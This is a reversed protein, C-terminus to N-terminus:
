RPRRGLLSTPLVCRILTRIPHPTSAPTWVMHAVFLRDTSACGEVVPGISATRCLCKARFLEDFALPVLPTHTYRLSGTGPDSLSDLRTDPGHTRRFILRDIRLRRRGPRDLEGNWM